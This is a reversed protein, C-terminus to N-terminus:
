KRSITDFVRMIEAIFAPTGYIIFRSKREEPHYIFDYRTPGWAPDKANLLAILSNSLRGSEEPDHNRIEVVASVRIATEGAEAAHAAPRAERGAGADAPEGTRGSDALEAHAYERLDAEHVRWSRGIKSGRLKGERIFRRVTKPHLDLIGALEEVSYLRQEM